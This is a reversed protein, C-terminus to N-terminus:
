TEWGYGVHNLVHDRMGSFSPEYGNAVLVLAHFKKWAKKRAEADGDRRARAFEEIQEVFWSDSLCTLCKGGGGRARPGTRIFDAASYRADAKAKAM